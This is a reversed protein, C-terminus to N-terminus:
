IIYLKAAVFSNCIQNRSSAMINSPPVPSRCLPCYIVHRWLKERAPRVCPTIILRVVSWKFIVAFSRRIQMVAIRSVRFSAGRFKAGVHFQEWFRFQLEKIYINWGFAFRDNIYVYIYVHLFSSASYLINNWIYSSTFHSDCIQEDWTILADRRYFIAFVWSTM